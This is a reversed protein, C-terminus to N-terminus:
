FNPLPQGDDRTALMALTALPLSNTLFRVSGDGMLGNVGGSHASNLPINNGTNQCVGTTACNGPSDPWGTKQNIPYRVTTMQFHRYDGTDNRPTTPTSGYQSGILWGHLLGTGWAVRAGNVTQLFDNQESVVLTNSTGDTIATLRIQSVPFLTGGYSAMGGGCCNVASNNQAIRTELFGPILGAVAGAIGVYHNASINTGGPPPSPAVDGVPSSPCLYTRMRIGSSLAANNTAGWGSNAPFTFGRYLNDQEIYPLIWVTWAMGWGGGSGVPAVNSIGGWPLSGRADHYSHLAVGIQKLNNQCQM